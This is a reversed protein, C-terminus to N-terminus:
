KAAFWGTKLSSRRSRQRRFAGSLTVTASGLHPRAAPYDVASTTPVGTPVVLPEPAVERGSLRGVPMVIPSSCNRGTAGRRCDASSATVMSSQVSLVYPRCPDDTPIHTNQLSASPVSPEVTVTLRAVLPRHVERHQRKDPASPSTPPM